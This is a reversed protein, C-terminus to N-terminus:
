LDHRVSYVYQSNNEQKNNTQTAADYGMSSCCSDEEKTTAGIRSYEADDNNNISGCQTLTHMFSHTQWYDLVSCIQRERYWFHTM